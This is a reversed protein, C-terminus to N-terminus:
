NVGLSFRFEVLNATNAYKTIPLADSTKIVSYGTLGYLPNVTELNELRVGDLAVYFDNTPSEGGSPIVSVYVKIANMQNWAFDPSTELSDIKARAVVYRNNTFDHKASDPDSSSIDDVVLEMKAFASSSGSGVNDASTAELLIRVSGPILTSNAERNIVSFALRFEDQPSNKDFDLNVGTLHVHSGTVESIAGNAVSINSLDGSLLLTNNLYRPIEYRDIRVQNQLTKNDANTFFAKDTQIIDYPTTADGLSGLKSSIGLVETDTHLEWGETDSFSYLMRSDYSIASPNAAASYIGIETIEYRDQTPLEATLVIKEQGADNVYGRSIIPVRFMEFDLQEKEAFQGNTDTGELVPTAGCGVAIYSAYAPVQGILYKAIISKGKNTIM